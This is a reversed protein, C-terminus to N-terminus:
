GGQEQCGVRKFGSLRESLEGGVAVVMHKCNGELPNHNLLPMM